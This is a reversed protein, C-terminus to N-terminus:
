PIDLVAPVRFQHDEIEAANRLIEETDLSDEAKDNRLVNQPPLVSFTPLIDGTDLSQLRAAYELIASLQQCFLEKEENSLTLRALQAIHEVEQLTLMPNM